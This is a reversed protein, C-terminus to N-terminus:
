VIMLYSCEVLDLAARLISNVIFHTRHIIDTEVFVFFNSGYILYFLPIQELYYEFIRM